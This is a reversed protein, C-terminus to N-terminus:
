AYISPNEMAEELSTLIENPSRCIPQPVLKHYEELLGNKREYEELDYPTFFIIVPRNLILWDIFASSYDTVLIDSVSFLNYLDPEEAHSITQIRYLDQIYASLTPNDLTSPCDVQLQQGGSIRPNITRRNRSAHSNINIMLGDKESESHLLTYSHYDCREEALNPICVITPNQSEFVAKKHSHIPQPEKRPNGSIIFRNEPIGFYIKLEYESAVFFRDIKDIWKM